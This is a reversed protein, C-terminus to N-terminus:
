LLFFIQFRDDNFHIQIESDIIEKFEGTETPESYWSNTIALLFHDREQELHPHILILYIESCQGDIM